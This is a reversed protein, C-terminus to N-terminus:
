NFIDKFCIGLNKREYVLDLKIEKLRDFFTKPIFCNNFMM